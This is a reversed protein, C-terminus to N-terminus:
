KHRRARRSRMYDYVRKPKLDEPHLIRLNSGSVLERHEDPFKLRAKVGTPTDVLGLVEAYIGHGIDKTKCIRMEM